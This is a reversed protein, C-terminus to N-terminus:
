FRYTLTLGVGDRLPVFLVSPVTPEPQGDARGLIKKELKLIKEELLHVAVASGSGIVGGALVDSPYHVGLYVRGHAVLFAWLYLPICLYPEKYRLSLTTALAFAAASHGSPFSYPDRSPGNVLHVNKLTQYPRDRKVIKKLAYGAGASLAESCALLIGTEREQERGTIIGYSVFGIPISVALPYVFDNNASVFDDLFPSRNNNITRFLSVDINSPDGQALSANPQVLLSILFFLGSKLLTSSPTV